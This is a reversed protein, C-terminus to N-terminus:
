KAGSSYRPIWHGALALQRQKEAGGGREMEWNQSSSHKVESAKFASSYLNMKPVAM